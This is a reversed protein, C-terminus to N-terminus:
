HLFKSVPSALYVLLLALCCVASLKEVAMAPHQSLLSIGPSNGKCGLLVTTMVYRMRTTDRSIRGQGRIHRPVTACVQSAM